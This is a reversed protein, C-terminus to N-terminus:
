SISTPRRYVPLVLLFYATEPRDSHGNQIIKHDYWFSDIHGVPM